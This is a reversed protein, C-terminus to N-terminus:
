RPACASCMVPDSAVAPVENGTFEQFPPGGPLPSTEANVDTPPENSRGGESAQEARRSDAPRSCQFGPRTPTKLSQVTSVTFHWDEGTVSPAPMTSLELSVPAPASAIREIFRPWVTRRDQFGPQDSTISKIPPM